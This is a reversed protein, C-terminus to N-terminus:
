ECNKEQNQVKTGHYRLRLTIMAMNCSCYGAVQWICAFLSIRNLNLNVVKADSSNQRIDLQDKMM